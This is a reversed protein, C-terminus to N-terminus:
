YVAKISRNGSLVIYIGRERLLVLQETAAAKSNYVLRGSINYISFAEGPTLGRVQLGGDMSVVQLKEYKPSEIGTPTAVHPTAIIIGSSYATESSSGKALSVNFSYSGNTGFPSDASGATAASLGSVTVDSLSITIGTSIILSNIHDVLWNRVDSSSNATAQAVAFNTNEILYRAVEVAQQDATKTFTATVTVASAPMTFTTTASNANAFTVTPSATWNKFQQGAPPTGASISVTSGITYIGSGTAGTGASSVTVTYTSIANVTFSLGATISLGNDGTVTLTGNYPGVALGAKPRISVTATGGTNITAASLLTSIEFDSTAGLSVNVNTLQGTGTNTITFVQASQVDYGVTAATFTHSDPSVTAKYTPTVTVAAVTSTITATTAGIGAGAAITNTVEVYYYVVGVTAVPPAYTNSEAGPIPTGGSNVNTSNSYWRYSLTGGDNTAAVVSLGASGDTDVTVNQPQTTITPSGANTLTNVVVTAVNSAVDTAGGTASVKCYYYYPSGVETLDTPITFTTTIIGTSSGGTNSASTNSFWEYSLTAGGTASATVGLSGNISGETVTTTVTPQTNISIVAVITTITASAPSSASENHTTTGKIRAYFTYGTNPTLSNFTESDQWTSGGDNSYEAYPITNLTISESLISAATPAAPASLTAKAVTGTPNSRVDGICNPSEVKVTITASVDDAVLAYTANTADTIATSDNRYWQYTLTDLEVTPTSTLGTTVATLTEGFVANGSITVSGDLTAKDTTIATGASEPSAALTITEKLRAYFTYPTNPTLDSFTESDQWAGETGKRYEADTIANLTISTATKSAESPAAPASQTTKATIVGTLSNTTVSSAGAKSLTVTFDFSGNSVGGTAPSFNSIAIDTAEVTVGTTGGDLLTNITTVLWGKVDNETNATGQGVTYGPTTAYTEVAIKANDVNLQAQSPVFSATVTTNYGPMNFTYTSNDVIGNGTLGYTTTPANSKYAKISDLEYGTAPHITLTVFAGAAISGTQSATVGGNTISEDITLTSSVPTITPPLLPNVANGASIYSDVITQSIYADYELGSVHDYIRYYVEDNDDGRVILRAIYGTGAYQTADVLRTAGRCEDDVVSFAGLEVTNREQIVGGISIRTTVTMYDSYHGPAPPTWHLALQGNVNIVNLSCLAFLILFSRFFKKKKM